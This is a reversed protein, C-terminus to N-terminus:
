NKKILNSWAYIWLIIDLCCIMGGFFSTWFVFSFTALSVDHQVLEWLVIPLGIILLLMLLIFGIFIEILKTTIKEM